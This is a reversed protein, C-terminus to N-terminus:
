VVYLWIYVCHNHYEGGDVCCVALHLCLSQSVRRRRCLMCGFTFVHHNHYEGGDVCCVALHLCM